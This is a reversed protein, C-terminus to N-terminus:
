RVTPSFRGCGLTCADFCPKRLRLDGTCTEGAGKTIALSRTLDLAKSDGRVPRKEIWGPPTVENVHTCRRLRLAIARLDVEHAQGPLTLAAPVFAIRWFEVRLPPAHRGVSQFHYSGSNQEPRLRLISLLHVVLVIPCRENPLLRPLLSSSILTSQPM